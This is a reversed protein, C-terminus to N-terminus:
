GAIVVVPRNQKRTEQFDIALASTDQSKTQVRKGTEEDVTKGGGRGTSILRQAPHSYRSKCELLLLKTRSIIETM